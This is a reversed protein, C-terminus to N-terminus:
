KVNKFVFLFVALKGGNPLTDINANPYAPAVYSVYSCHQLSYSSNRLSNVTSPPLVFESGSATPVSNESGSLRM